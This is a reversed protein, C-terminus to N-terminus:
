TAKGESGSGVILLLAHIKLAYGILQIDFPSKNIHTRVKPEKSGSMLLHM